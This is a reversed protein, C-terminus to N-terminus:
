SLNNISLPYYWAVSDCSCVLDITMFDTDDHGLSIDGQSKYKLGKIRIWGMSPVNLGSFPMVLATKKSKEQDDYFKHGTEFSFLPKYIIDELWNAVYRRVFGKEDEILTLTISDPYVVEKLAKVGGMEEYELGIFSMNINKIYFKAMLTDEAAQLFAKPSTFTEPFLLIEFLNKNQPSFLEMVAKGPITSAYAAMDAAKKIGDIMGSNILM